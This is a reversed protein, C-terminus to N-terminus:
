SDSSALNLHSDGKLGRDGNFASVHGTAAVPLEEVFAHLKIPSSGEEMRRRVLSFFGNKTNALAQSRSKLVELLQSNPRKVLSLSIVNAIGNAFKTFDSGGNPTGLFCIGRVSNLLIAQSEDNPNSCLLLADEVM